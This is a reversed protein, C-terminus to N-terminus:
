LRIAWGWARARDMGVLAPSLGSWVDRVTQHYSQTKQSRLPPDDALTDLYHRMAGEDCNQSRFYDAAQKAATLGGPKRDRGPQGVGARALELAVRRAEEMLADTIM